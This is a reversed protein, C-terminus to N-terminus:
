LRKAICLTVLEKSDAFEWSIAWLEWSRAYSGWRRPSARKAFHVFLAPHLAALMDAYQLSRLRFSRQEACTHVTYSSSGPHDIRRIHVSQGSVLYSNQVYPTASLRLRAAPYFTPTNSYNPPSRRESAVTYWLGYGRRKIPLSTMVM